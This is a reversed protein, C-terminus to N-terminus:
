EGTYTHNFMMYFFMKKQRLNYAQGEFIYEFLQIDAKSLSEKDFIYSMIKGNGPRIYKWSIKEAQIYPFSITGHYPVRGVIRKKDLDLYINGYPGFGHELNCVEGPKMKWPDGNLEPSNLSWKMWYFGCPHSNIQRRWNDTGFKSIFQYMWFLTKLTGIYGENSTQTFATYKGKQLYGVTGVIM